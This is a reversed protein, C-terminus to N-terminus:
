DPRRPIRRRRPLRRAEPSEPPRPHRPGRDAGRAGDHGNEEALERERDESLGIEFFVLSTALVLGIGILATALAGGLVGPVFAACALGGVVLIAAAGFALLRVRRPM